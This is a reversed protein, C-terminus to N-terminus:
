ELCSLAQEYKKAKNLIVAKSQLIDAIKTHTQVGDLVESALRTARDIQTMAKELDGRNSNSEAIVALVIPTKPGKM